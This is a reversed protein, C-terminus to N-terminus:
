FQLVANIGGGASALNVTPIITIQVSQKQLKYQELAEKYEDRKVAHKKHEKYKNVNYGLVAFGTLTCVVGTVVLMAAALANGMAEGFAKTSEEAFDGFKSIDNTGYNKKNSKSEKKPPPYTIGWILFAIGVGTVSGGVAIGTVNPKYNAKKNEQTILDEYYLITSDIAAINITNNQQTNPKVINKQKQSTLKNLDIFVPENNEILNAQSETAFVNCFFSGCLLIAFFINRCNAM